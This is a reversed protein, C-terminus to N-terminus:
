YRSLLTYVFIGFIGVAQFVKPFQRTIKMRQYVVILKESKSVTQKSNILDFHFHKGQM